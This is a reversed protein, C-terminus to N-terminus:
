KPLKEFGICIIDFTFTAFFLAVFFMPLVIKEILNSKIFGLVIIPVLLIICGFTKIVIIKKRGFKDM